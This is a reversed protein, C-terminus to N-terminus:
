ENDTAKYSLKALENFTNYLLNHLDKHKFNVIAKTQNNELDEHTEIRFGYKDDLLFNLYKPNFRINPLYKNLEKSIEEFINGYDKSKFLKIDIKDGFEKQLNKLFNNIKGKLLIIKLSKGQKLFSYLQNSLFNEYFKENFSDSVIFLEKKTRDLFESFVIEAHQINSNDFFFDEGDKGKTSLRHVFEKYKLLDFLSSNM